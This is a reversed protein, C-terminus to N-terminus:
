LKEKDIKINYKAALKLLTEKEQEEKKKKREQKRLKDFKERRQLENINIREEYEEDTEIRDWSIVIEANDGYYSCNYSM